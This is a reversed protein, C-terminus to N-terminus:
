DEYKSIVKELVGDLEDITLFEASESDLEILQVDLYTKIDAYEDRVIQLDKPNCKEIIALFQSYFRKSIKLKITEM